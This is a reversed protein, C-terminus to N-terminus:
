FPPEEEGEPVPPAPVRVRLCAVLRGEYQTKDPYIEIERGVWNDMEDGFAEALVSGNTKNLALGRQKGAFFVIWKEDSGIKGFETRAITVKVSHGNLDSAKLYDSQVQDSWKPM